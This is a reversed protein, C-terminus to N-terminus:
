RHSNRTYAANTLAFPSVTILSCESPELGGMKAKAEGYPKKLRGSKELASLTPLGETVNDPQAKGGSANEIGERSKFVGKSRDALPEKSNAPQVLDSAAALKRRKVPGEGKERSPDLGPRSETDEDVDIYSKIPTSPKSKPTNPVTSSKSSTGKGKLLAKEGVRTPRKSPFSLSTQRLPTSSADM